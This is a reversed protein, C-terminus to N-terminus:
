SGSKSLVFCWCRRLEWYAFKGVETMSALFYDGGFFRWCEKAFLM